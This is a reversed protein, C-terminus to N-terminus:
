KKGRAISKVEKKLNLEPSSILDKKTYFWELIKAAKQDKLQYKVGGRDDFERKIVKMPVLVVEGVEFLEENRM